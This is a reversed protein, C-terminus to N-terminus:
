QTYNNYSQIKNGSENANSHIHMSHAGIIEKQLAAFFSYRKFAESHMM